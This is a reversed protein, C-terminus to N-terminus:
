TPSEAAAAPTSRDGLPWTQMAEHRPHPGPYSRMLRMESATFPPGNHQSLQAVTAALASAPANRYRAVTLHAAFPRRELEVGASRLSGGVADALRTLQDVDGGLGIWLVAPRASSPFVGAGSLRLQMPQAGAAVGALAASLAPVRGADIEGLFALTVHWREPSVSRAPAIDIQGLVGALAARAEPSPEVSVFLRM